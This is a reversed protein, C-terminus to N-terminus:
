EMDAIRQKLGISLRTMFANTDASNMNVAVVRQSADSIVNIFTYDENNMAEDILSNLTSSVVNEAYGRTVSVVFPRVKINIWIFIAVLIILLWLIYWLFRLPSQKEYVSVIGLRM